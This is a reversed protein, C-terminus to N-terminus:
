RDVVAVLGVFETERGLLGLKAHDVVQIVEM